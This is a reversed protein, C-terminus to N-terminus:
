EREQKYHSDKTSNECKGHTSGGEGIRRYMAMAKPQMNEEQLRELETEDITINQQPKYYTISTNLHYNRLEVLATVCTNYAQCLEESGSSAVYHRISPYSAIAELLNQHKPLMYDRMRQLFSAANECTPRIGLLQDFCQVTSSQAASGGSLYIPEKSVGEYILGDPMLPNDKWRDPRRSSRLVLLPPTGGRSCSFAAVGTPTPVVPVSSPFEVNHPSMAVALPRRSPESAMTHLVEAVGPLSAPLDDPLVQLVDPHMIFPAAESWEPLRLRSGSSPAQSSPLLPPKAPQSEGEQWVYGMTIFGLSLHALRMARHGQLYQTSLLPMYMYVDMAQLETAMHPPTPDGMGMGGVNNAAQRYLATRREPRKM